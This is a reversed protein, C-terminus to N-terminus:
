FTICIFSYNISMFLKNLRHEIINNLIKNIASYPKAVM